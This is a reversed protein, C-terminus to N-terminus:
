GNPQKHLLAVLFFVVQFHQPLTELSLKAGTVPDTNNSVIEWKIWDLHVMVALLNQKQLQYLLLTVDLKSKGDAAVGRAHGVEARVESVHAFTVFYSILALCIM